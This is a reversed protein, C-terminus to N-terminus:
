DLSRASAQEAKEVYPRIEVYPEGDKTVLASLGTEEIEDIIDFCKEEVESVDYRKMRLSGLSAVTEM